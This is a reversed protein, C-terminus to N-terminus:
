GPSRVGFKWDQGEANKATSEQGVHRHKGWLLTEDAGTRFTAATDNKSVTIVRFDFPALNTPRLTSVTRRILLFNFKM